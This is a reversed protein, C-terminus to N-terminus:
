RVAVLIYEILACKSFMRGPDQALSLSQRPECLYAEHPISPMAYGMAGRGEM